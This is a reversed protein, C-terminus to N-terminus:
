PCGALDTTRIGHLLWDLGARFLEDRDVEVDVPATGSLVRALEHARRRPDAGQGAAGAVLTEAHVYALLWRSATVFVAAAREPPLGLRILARTEAQVTAETGAAPGRTLLYGAVGPHRLYISRASIALRRTVDCWQSATHVADYAPAVGDVVEGLLEETVLDLLETKTAVYRYVAPATVDLDAALRRMTLAGLGDRRIIGVATAVVVDRDLGRKETRSPM